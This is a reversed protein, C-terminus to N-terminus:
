FMPPLGRVNGLTYRSVLTQYDAITSPNTICDYVNALSDEGDQEKKLTGM